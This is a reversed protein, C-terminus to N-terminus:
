EKITHRKTGPRRWHRTKQPDYPGRTSELMPNEGRRWGELYGPVREFGNHERSQGCEIWWSGDRWTQILRSRCEGCRHSRCFAEDFDGGYRIQDRTVQLAM